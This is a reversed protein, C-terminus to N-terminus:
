ELFPTLTGFYMLNLQHMARTCAIYLMSKDMDTYYTSASVFPIIVQDFELGKAMHATTVIIGEKFETSNFNLLHIEQFQDKLQENIESAQEQTKCVIGMSHYESEFFRAILNKIEELQEGASSVRKTVPEEGHREVSILKSNRKIKQALNMIEITSRYSKCLEMCDADDYISKIEELTSSSYPNVSQSSDGLITMNCHFLKKLVAYQIPTYDQMEDVLLHKIHRYNEEAGEFFMKVYVYPFVDAYELTKDQKPKFLEPRNIFDFFYKYISM